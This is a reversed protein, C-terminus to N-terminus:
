SGNSHKQNAYELNGKDYKQMILQGLLSKPNFIIRWIQKALLAKNFYGLKIMNLGRQDLSQTLRDWSLM